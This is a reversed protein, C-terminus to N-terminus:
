IKAYIFHFSPGVLYQACKMIKMYMELLIAFKIPEILSSCVSLQIVSLLRGPNVLVRAETLVAPTLTLLLELILDIGSGRAALAISANIM